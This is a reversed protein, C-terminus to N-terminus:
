FDMHVDMLCGNFMRKIQILVMFLGHNPLVGVPFGRGGRCAMARQLAAHLPVEGDGLDGVERLGLHFRPRCGQLFPQAAMCECIMCYTYLYKNINLSLLSYIM